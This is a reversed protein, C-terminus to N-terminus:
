LIGVIDVWATSQIEAAHGQGYNCNVVAPSRHEALGHWQAM